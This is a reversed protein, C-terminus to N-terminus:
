ITNFLTTQHPDAQYYLNALKQKLGMERFEPRIKLLVLKNNVKAKMLPLGKKIVSSVYTRICGESLGVRKAIDNYSVRELEEEMQYVTLFVLFEQKTLSKFKDEIYSKFGSFSYSDVSHINSYVGENGSSSPMRNDQLTNRFMLNDLKEKLEKIEKSQEVMVKKFEFELKTLESKYDVERETSVEGM